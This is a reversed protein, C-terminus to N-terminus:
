ARGAMATSRELIEHLLDDTKLGQGLGDFNLLMRHRLAAVAHRQVDDVAVAARGERLAQVKGALVLAQAGRPSSGLMVYKNVRETAYPSGPQTAMVLRTAATRAAEPVPVERVLQRLALVEDGTTVAPVEPAKGGTTRELIAAYESEKPYGVLLKFLFRDLQAEPLAYTGASELPNQTALVFYPDPLPHTVGDVTV